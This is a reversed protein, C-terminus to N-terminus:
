CTTKHRNFIYFIPNLIGGIALVRSEIKFLRKETLEKKKEDDQMIQYYHDMTKYLYTFLM